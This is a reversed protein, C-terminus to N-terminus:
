CQFKKCSSWKKRKGNLEFNHQDTSLDAIMKMKHAVMQTSNRESLFEVKRQNLGSDARSENKDVVKLSGRCFKKDKHRYGEATWLKTNSDKKPNRLQLNTCIEKKTNTNIVTIWLLEITFLYEKTNMQTSEKVLIWLLSYYGATRQKWQRM